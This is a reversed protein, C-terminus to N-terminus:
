CGAPRVPWPLLCLMLLVSISCTAIAACARLCYIIPEVAPMAALDDCRPSEQCCATNVQM